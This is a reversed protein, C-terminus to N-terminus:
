RSITTHATRAVDLGCNPLEQVPRRSFRPFRLAGGFTMSMHAVAVWRCGAGKVDRPGSEVVHRDDDCIGHRDTDPRGCPM